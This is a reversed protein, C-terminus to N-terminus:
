IGNDKRRKRRPGGSRRSHQCRFCLFFHFGKYKLSKTNSTLASAKEHHDLSYNPNAWVFLQQGQHPKHPYVVSPSVGGINNPPPQTDAAGRGLHTQSPKQPKGWLSVASGVVEKMLTRYLEKTHLSGHVVSIMYYIQSIYSGEVFHNQSALLWAFLFCAVFTHLFFHLNIHMHQLNIHM